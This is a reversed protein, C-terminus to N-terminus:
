PLRVVLLDRGLQRMTFRIRKDLTGRERRRMLSIKLTHLRCRKYVVVALPKIEEVKYKVPRGPGRKHRM